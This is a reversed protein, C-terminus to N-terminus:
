GVLESLELPAGGSRSVKGVQCVRTQWLPRGCRRPPDRDGGVRCGRETPSALTTSNQLFTSKGFLNLRPDTEFRWDPKTRSPKTRSPKTRSPKTRSSLTAPTTRRCRRIKQNSSRGGQWCSASRARQGVLANESLAQYGEDLRQWSATSAEFEDVLVGSTLRRVM